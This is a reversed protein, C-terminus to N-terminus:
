DINLYDKIIRWRELRAEKSAHGKEIFKYLPQNIPINQLTTKVRSNAADAYITYRVDYEVKEYSLTLGVEINALPAIMARYQDLGERVEDLTVFGGCASDEEISFLQKGLEVEKNVEM